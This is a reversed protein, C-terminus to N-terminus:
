GMLVPWTPRGPEGLGDEAWGEEGTMVENVSAIPLQVALVGSVSGDEGIPSVAWGAPVNYSPQYREFDRTQVFDVANSALADEFAEALSTAAFPGTRLNTGLDVGKYASYVVVGSPDILLVDDYNFRLAMERFYDHYRAHTASWASGDGADDLQIAEDFDTFPVTYNLQLYEQATTDPLFGAPDSENGTNAELAPVFVDSYYSEVAAQEDATIAADELEAFGATFGEVADIATTGRTYLVLSDLLQNYLRALERHRSERVETLRDFASQRLADRGSRYAVFGVVLSSVVSTVLLMLLVRSQIGLRLRRRPRQAMTVAAPTAAVMGPADGPPPGDAPAGTSDAVEKAPGTEVTM